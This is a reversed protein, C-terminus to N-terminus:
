SGMAQSVDLVIVKVREGGERWRRRRREVEEEEEEEEEVEEEM